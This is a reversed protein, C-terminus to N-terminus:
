IQRGLWLKPAAYIQCDLWSKPAQSGGERGWRPVVASSSLMARVNQQRGTEVLGEVLVASVKRANQVVGRGAADLMIEGAFLVSCSVYYCVCVCVIYQWFGARNM